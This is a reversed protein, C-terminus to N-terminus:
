RKIWSTPGSPSQRTSPTGSPGSTARRVWPSRLTMAWCRPRLSRHSVACRWLSGQSTFTRFSNRVTDRLIEHSFSTKEGVKLVRQVDQDVQMEAGKFGFDCLNKAAGFGGPFVVAQFTTPEWCSGALILIISVSRASGPRRSNPCLPSTEAPSERRSRCM